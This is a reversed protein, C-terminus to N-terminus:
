MYKQIIQYRVNAGYTTMQPWSELKVIVQGNSDSELTYKGEQAQVETDDGDIVRYVHKVNKGM